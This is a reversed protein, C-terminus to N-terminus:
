PPHSGQLSCMRPLQRCSGSRWGCAGPAPAAPSPSRGSATALSRVEGQEKDGETSRSEGGVGVGGNWASDDGCRSGSCMQFLQLRHLCSWTSVGGGFGM